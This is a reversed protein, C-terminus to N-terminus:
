LFGEFKVISERLRGIKGEGSNWKTANQTSNRLHRVVVVEKFNWGLNAGIDALILDVPIEIGAYASTSVVMWISADRAAKEKLKLLVYKMDEFYAQIMDPIRNSWLTDKRTVIQDYCNEYLAGFDNDTPNKWKAQIHSRLTSLRLKYLDENNAVFKGLFLEPRYIDSYDFSNLYPPSTVCLKFRKQDDLLDINTRIDGTIIKGSKLLPSCDLDTSIMGYLNNFSQVFTKKSYNRVNWDKKYRVCKGDKIFNANDIAATILALEYIEKIESSLEQAAEWGGEFAQIVETNFLWKKENNAPTFTSFGELSSKSGKNIGQFISQASDTFRNGCLTSLKVNAILSMFPNVEFGISDYGLASAVLPVTGSGAFPDIVLDYPNLNSEQIAKDVLLPSFGEKFYYWRHRPLAKAHDFTSYGVNTFPYYNRILQM